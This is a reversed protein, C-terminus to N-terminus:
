ASDVATDSVPARLGYKLPTGRRSAEDENWLWSCSVVRLGPPLFSSQCRADNALVNRPEWDNNLASVLMMPGSTFIICDMNNM